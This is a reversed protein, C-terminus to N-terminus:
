LWCIVFFLSRMARLPLLREIFLLRQTGQGAVIEVFM